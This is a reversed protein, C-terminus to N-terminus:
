RELPERPGSAPARGRGPGALGPGSELQNMPLRWTVHRPSGLRFPFPRSPVPRSSMFHFSVFHFSVPRSAACHSAVRRSSVFRSPDLALLAFMSLDARQGRASVFLRCKEILQRKERTRGSPPESRAGTEAPPGSRNPARVLRVPRRLSPRGAGLGDRRELFAGRLHGAGSSRCKRPARSRAPGASM